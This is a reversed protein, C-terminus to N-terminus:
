VYTVEKSIEEAHVVETFMFDDDDDSLQGERLEARDAADAAYEETARARFAKWQTKWDERERAAGSLQSQRIEDDEKSFQDWFKDKLNNKVEMRKKTTLLTAPRPRWLVQYFQDASISQQLQGSCTWMKYGNEMTARFNHQDVDIPQTVSTIVFRGSPDWEVDTCMIHETSVTTTWDSTDVFDLQGNKDGLGALVIYDGTPSWFLCNACRNELTKIKELTKRKLKYFSVDPHSPNGHILAFRHGKPEWAFAIVEDEIELVEVPINKERLRFIEFNQVITKKTKKRAMKVCLYDGNSQWHMKVNDVSYLHKERILKRSPVEILAVKAPVNKQEPVWYALINQSPCWEIQRVGEVKISKKDLLGMHPTEYVSIVGDGTRAFYKDDHSWKFAPWSRTMAKDFGRMMKQTKIDWIQICWNPDKPGKRDKGNSTVIYKENPSWAIINVGSHIIRGMSQFDDGGWLKVGQRHFTALFSGKPSWATYSETWVKSREKEREGGYQLVRGQSNAKRYPDNWFIQTEKGHRIVFQDRGFHDLLWSTLTVNSEFEPEEPAEYTDPASLYNDFENWRTVRLKHDKDLKKNDGETQATEAGKPTEFEIFCYGMTKKDDGCPMHFGDKAVKGHKGFIRQLVKCLKEYKKEGVIPINDVIVVNRFDDNITIRREGFEEYEDAM